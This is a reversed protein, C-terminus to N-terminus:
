EPLRLAVLSGPLDPPSAVPVVIYQAGDHEFTMFPASTSGPLDVTALEDGTRKDVAHLRPEGTRGEGYIMLSGTVMVHANQYEHYLYSSSGVVATLNHGPAVVDPKM